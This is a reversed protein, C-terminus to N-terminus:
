PRALTAAASMLDPLGIVVPVLLLGYTALAQGGTLDGARNFSRYRGSPQGRSVTLDSFLCRPQSSLFAAGPPRSLIGRREAVEFPVEPM